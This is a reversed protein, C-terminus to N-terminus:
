DNTPNELGVGDLSEPLGDLLLGGKAQSGEMYLLLLDGLRHRLAIDCRGDGDFDASDVVTYDDRSWSPFYGSSDSFREESVNRSGFLYM